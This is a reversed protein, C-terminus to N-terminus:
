STTVIGKFLESIEINFIIAIKYLHEINFHKGDICLEASSVLSVSKYGMKYTLELQSMNNKERYKKVNSGIIRYMELIDDKSFEYDM